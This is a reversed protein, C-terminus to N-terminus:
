TITRNSIFCKKRRDMKERELKNVFIKYIIMFMNFINAKDTIMEFEFLM